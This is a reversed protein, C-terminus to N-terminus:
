LIAYGMEQIYCELNVLVAYISVHVFVSVSVTVFVSMTVSVAMAVSVNIPM